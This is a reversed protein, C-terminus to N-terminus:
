DRLAVSSGLRNLAEAFVPSRIIKAGTGEFTDCRGSVPVKPDCYVKSYWCGEPWDGELTMDTSEGEVLVGEVFGTASDIVPSGSNGPYTDLFASFHFEPSTDKVIGGGTVKLPLGFPHGLMTLNAKKSVSGKQRVLLPPIAEASRDLRLVSFDILPGQQLSSRVIGACAFVNAEALPYLSQTKPNWEVGFVIARNRCAAEDPIVHGATVLLHSAVLFGSGASYISAPQNQFRERECLPEEINFAEEKFTLFNLEIGRSTSVLRSWPVLLAVSRSAEREKSDSPYEYLDRRDDTGWVAANVGGAWFLLFAIGWAAGGKLWLGM